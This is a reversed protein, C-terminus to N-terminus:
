ANTSKAAPFMREFEPHGHLIELDPDRRIWDLNSYGADKARVLAELADERRGLV